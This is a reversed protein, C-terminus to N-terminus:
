IIGEDSLIGVVKTTIEELSGTLVEAGEGKQPQFMRTIALGGDVEIESVEVEEITSTNRAQRVRSFAIYRPPEEAAQIGIVAPLSADIKATLGGPYEKLVIMNGNELSIGAIYGIYPIGLRAALFPGLQGDLDDHAQVGTLVLDPGLEAIIPTCAHALSHNNFDESLGILKILRDAGTAAATYLVDDAGEVDSTIVIVEAGIREKLLIAEEIAHNDLENLALRMWTKDLSTGNPDISIEEVLDPVLKVPVVIKM